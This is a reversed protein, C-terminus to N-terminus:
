RGSFRAHRAALVQFSATAPGGERGDLVPVARLEYRGPTLRHAGPIHGSFRLSNAGARASWLFSGVLVYRTCPAAERHRHQHPPPAVCGHASTRVGALSALVTFRTLAPQSDTYSVTAGGHRLLPQIALGSAAALFAHPSIVLGTITPSPTAVKAHSPPNATPAQSPNQAPTPAPAAILAPAPERCAAIAACVDLRRAGEVKGQLSPLKVAHELIDARLQQATLHPEVSLVLAAAGSVQATAMSTGSLYGYEGVRLTSYISEGPAALQVVGSGFNAWVPLEDTDDTATVCIETPLDFACPYLHSGASDEDAADNGAATVFLIGEAGLEEIAQKLEPLAETGAFVASDNVVRINVHSARKVELLWHLASALTAATQEEGARRLWKVPLITTHWNMGAVGIGNDGVAGIIGAVHTGHGGYEREEEHEPELNKGEDDLPQCAESLVDYGRTGEPCRGQPGCLESGPKCAGVGGPNTWVNADLDPHKYDLGADVEGIVISPSGTTVGWAQRAADDAGPTGSEFGAINEEPLWQVPVTQGSNENGWQLSFHPDNPTVAAQAAGACALCLVGAIAALALAQTRAFRLM